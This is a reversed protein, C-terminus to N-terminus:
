AATHTCLFLDKWLPPSTDPVSFTVHFQESKCHLCPFLFCLEWRICSRQIMFWFCLQFFRWLTSFISGHLWSSQNWGGFVVFVSFILVRRIMWNSWWLWLDPPKFAVYLPGVLIDFAPLTLLKTFSRKGCIIVEQWDKDRMETSQPPPPPTASRRFLWITWM